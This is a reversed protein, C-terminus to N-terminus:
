LRKPSSDDGKELRRLRADLDHLSRELRDRLDKLEREMQPSTSLPMQFPWRGIRLRGPRAEGLTVTAVQTQASRVYEVAVDTGPKRNALADLIDGADAVTQDGVRTVVDGAKLGGKAAPGEPVVEMILAGSPATVGLATRLQETTAIVRVGLETSVPHLGLPHDARAAAPAGLAVALAALLTWVKM